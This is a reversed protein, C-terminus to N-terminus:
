AKIVATPLTICPWTYYQDSGAANINKTPELSCKLDATKLLQRATNKKNKEFM